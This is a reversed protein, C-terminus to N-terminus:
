AAPTGLSSNDTETWTLTAGCNVTLKDVNFGGGMEAVEFVIVNEGSKLNIKATYEGFYKIGFVAMMGSWDTADTETVAAPLTGELQAEADNVKLTVGCNAAALAGVGWKATTEDYGEEAEGWMPAFKGAADIKGFKTSSARLKITASCAKDSNIKFTISQGVTSFYGVGTVEAGEEETGTWETATETRIYNDGVDGEGNALIANEAEFTFDKGGACGTLCFAGLTLALASSAAVILLKKIKM